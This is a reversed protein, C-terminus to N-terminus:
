LLIADEIVIDQRFMINDEIVIDKRGGSIGELTAMVLVEENLLNNLM